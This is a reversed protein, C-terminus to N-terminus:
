RKVIPVVYMNGQKDCFLVRYVGAPHGDLRIEQIGPLIHVPLGISQGLDNFLSATGEVAAKVFLLDDSPNPYISLGPLRKAPGIGLGEIVITDSLGQCGLTNTVRIGYIGNEQVLYDPRDAGPIDLGDKLWQYADFSGDCLLLLGNWEIEPLPRELVRVELALTDSLGGCASRAVVRLTGDQDGVRVELPNGSGLATWEDPVIWLYDVDPAFTDVAYVQVTGGCAVTDGMIGTQWTPIPCDNITIMFADVAGALQSQYANASAIGTGSNTKGIVYVNSQADGDLGGYSDAGYGGLYSSWSLSGDAGFKALFLDTNGIPSINMANPTSIGSASNTEGVVYIDGFDNIYCGRGGDQGSGGLYTSWRLQGDWAYCAVFADVSGGYATQHANGYAIGSTSFTSGSIVVMSDKCSLGVPSEQAPGGFYTCWQPVGSTDFRALYADTGGGITSQASGPTAIGVSSQTSGLLFIGDQGDYALANGTTNLNGGFYTAWILQGNPAMCALFADTAATKLTKYAGPTVPFDASSTNGAVYVRGDVDITMGFATGDSGNGGLYTGWIRAGTSDFKAIFASPMSASGTKASQFSGPTAIGTTSTTNGGIYIDGNPDLALDLCEDIATGGYYTAWLLEGSDTWKSLFADVGSNTYSTGGGIAVQHAGTTAINDLSSTNGAMYVHGNNDAKVKTSFDVGIGGFYTGWAVYPDIVLTGEYPDLDFSLAGNQLSFRGPVAKGADTFCVPAKEEINGMPSEAMYGGDPLLGSWLAGKYVMRIDSAKGGPRVVFDYKFGGGTREGGEPVYLVWDISPYVNEYVIRDYSFVDIAKGQATWSRQYRERYSSKGIRKAVVEQNAGLLHLEMRYLDFNGDGEVAAARAWQYEIKGAGVFVNLGDSASLKFDIDRRPVLHQDTVQGKNEVFHMKPPGGPGHPFASIDAYPCFGAVGASFALLLLTKKM